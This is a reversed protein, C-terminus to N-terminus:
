AEIPTSPSNGWESWSGQYARVRPYGLWKLIYFMHASRRNSQCYPIIELSPDVGAELLESRLEDPDRLQQHTDLVNKWEYHVASPIHGGRGARIDIGDYEERSRVDLICRDSNRLSDMLYDMEAATSEDVTCSCPNPTPTAPAPEVPLGEAKWAQIGGDLLAVHHHSCTLLTWLLRTARIGSHEDYAVVRTSADIGLGSILTALAGLDPLMGEAHGIERILKGYGLRIAGPIFDHSIASDPRLDVIRIYDGLIGSLQEARVVLEPRSATQQFSQNM